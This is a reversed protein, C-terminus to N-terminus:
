AEEVSFITVKNKGEKKSKYLPNDVKDFINEVAQISDVYYVGGSFTIPVVEDEYKLSNENIKQKVKLIIEKAKEAPCGPFLVFFEDGGYRFVFDTSRVQNTLSAALYRIIEDGFRHGFSDNIDKFDDIDVMAVSFPPSTQRLIHALYRHNYLGTMGDTISAQYSEQHANNVIQIQMDKNVFERFFLIVATMSFIFAYIFPSNISIIRGTMTSYIDIITFVMILVTGILFMRAEDTKKCHKISTYLWSFLVAAFVFNYVNYFSKFAIMDSTLFLILAFGSLTIIGIVLDAKNHFFKYMGLSAFFVAVYLASMILKKYLMYDFPIHFITIYDLTYLSLCLLAISFFLFSTNKPISVLYLMFAIICGFIAFGFGIRNIGETFSNIGYIHHSLEFAPVITLPMSGFGTQYESLTDITLINSDQVDSRDIFFHTASNWINSRGHNMDGISGLLKGNFYVSYAQCNLQSIMIAYHDSGLADLDHMYVTASYSVRKPELFNLMRYELTKKGSTFDAPEIILANKESAMYPYYSSVVIAIGILLILTYFILIKHRRILKM